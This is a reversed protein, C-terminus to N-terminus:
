SDLCRRVIEALKQPSYPKPLFNAGETFSAQVATVGPSYGTSFIVKLNPNRGKLEDALDTGMMGGPMVMDTLLLDIRGQESRWTELAAPGSRALLVRYGCLTLTDSVMERLSPEDEAVLITESGARTRTRRSPQSSGEACDKDSLPLYIRFASGTGVHSEVDVWGQHQKVIGYVTALGLGTGKGVAKTTFFPEFLHSRIESSIGCGNDAVTLCIFQGARAEPNEQVMTADVVVRSASLVVRGEKAIADRANVTLNVIVQEVMNRDAYIAPLDPACHTEVAIHEGVLQQLMGCLNHIVENVDVNSFQMVLKRSFM